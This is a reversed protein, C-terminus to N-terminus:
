HPADGPRPNLADVVSFPVKGGIFVNVGASKAMAEQLEAVRAPKESPDFQRFGYRGRAIQAKDVVRSALWQPPYAALQLYPWNKTEDDPYAFAYIPLEAILLSPTANWRGLPDTSVRGQEDIVIQENLVAMFASVEDESDLLAFSPEPGTLDVVPPRPRYGIAFPMVDMGRDYLMVEFVDAYTPNALHSSRSRGSRGFLRSLDLGFPFKVTTKSRSLLWPTCSM